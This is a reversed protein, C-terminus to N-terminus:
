KEKSILYEVTNAVDTMADSLNERQGSVMDFHKPDTLTWRWQKM